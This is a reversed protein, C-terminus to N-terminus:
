ASKTVNVFMSLHIIGVHSIKLFLGVQSVLPVLTQEVSKTRIELALKRGTRAGGSAMKSPRGVSQLALRKRTVHTM